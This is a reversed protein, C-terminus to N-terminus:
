SNRAWDPCEGTYDIDTTPVAGNITQLLPEAVVNAAREFGTGGVAAVTATVATALEAQAAQDGTNVANTWDAFWVCTAGQFLQFAYSDLSMPVQTTAAQQLADDTLGVLSLVQDALERHEGPMVIGIDSGTAEFTAPDTLTLSSLAAFFTDEDPFGSAIVYYSWDGAQWDVWYQGPQDPLPRYAVETGNVVRTTRVEGAIRGLLSAVGRNEANLELEAGGNAWRYSVYRRDGGLPTDLTRYGDPTTMTLSGDVLTLQNAMAVAEDVTLRVSNVRAVHGDDLPWFMFLVPGDLGSDEDTETVTISCQGRWWTFFWNLPGKRQPPLAESSDPAM